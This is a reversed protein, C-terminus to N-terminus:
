EREREREVSIDHNGSGRNRMKHETLIYHPGDAHLTRSGKREVALRLVGARKELGRREQAGEVAGAFAAALGCDFVTDQLEFM